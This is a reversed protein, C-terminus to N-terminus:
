KIENQTSILEFYVGNGEWFFMEFFFIFWQCQKYFILEMM